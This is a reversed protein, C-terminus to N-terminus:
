VRFTMESLALKFTNRGVDATHQVDQLICLMLGLYVGTLDRVELQALDRVLDSVFNFGHFGLVLHENLM